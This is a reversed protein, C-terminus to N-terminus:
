QGVCLPGSHWRESGAILDDRGRCWVHDHELLSHTGDYVLTALLQQM